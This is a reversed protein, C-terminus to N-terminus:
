RSEEDSRLRENQNTGTTSTTMTKTAKMTVAAAAAAAAAAGAGAEVEKEEEHKRKHSLFWFKRRRGAAFEFSNAEMTMRLRLLQEDMWVIEDKAKVLTDIVEDKNQEEIEWEELNTLEILRGSFIQEVSIEHAREQAEEIMAEMRPDLSDYLESLAALLGERLTQIPYNQLDINHSSRLWVKLENFQEHGPEDSASLYSSTKSM